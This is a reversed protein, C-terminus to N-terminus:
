ARKPYPFTESTGNSEILVTGEFVFSVQARHAVLHDNRLTVWLPGGDLNVLHNVGQIFGEHALAFIAASAGSACAETRGAGGEWVWLRINGEQIQVFEVNTKQPFFPHAELRPGVHCMREPDFKEVVIVLHPNGMNVAYGEEFGFDGLRLPADALLSARGQTVEVDSEGVVSGKLLGAPTEVVIESTGYRKALDWMVCRTGNGCAEASTGDANFIRMLGHVNEKNSPLVQLVQDCGIGYRRHAVTKINDQSLEIDGGFIVFDNGLSHMKQFYASKLAM